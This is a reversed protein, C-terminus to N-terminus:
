RAMRITRPFVGVLMALSEDPVECTVTRDFYQDFQELITQARQQPSEHDTFRQTLRIWQMRIRYANQREDYDKPYLLSLNGVPVVKTCQQDFKGGVIAGPGAFEAYYNKHIILGNRRRSSVVLLQGNNLQALIEDANLYEMLAKSATKHKPEGQHANHSQDQNSIAVTQGLTHTLGSLRIQDDAECIRDM